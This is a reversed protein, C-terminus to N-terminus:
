VGVVKHVFDFRTITGVLRGNEVVVGFEVHSEVLKVAVQFMPTSVEFHPADRRIIRTVKTSQAHRLLDQFPEFTKLFNLNDIMMLYDPIGVKLLRGTTILGMYKMNELNDVVPIDCTQKSVMMKIADDLSADVTLVPFDREMLDRATVVEGVTENHTAVYDIVGRGSSQRVIGDLAGPKSLLRATASMTRLYLNSKGEPVCYMVIVRVPEQDGMPIGQPFLGIFVYFDDFFVERAHPFAIGPAVVFSGLKQREQLATLLPAGPAGTTAAYFDVMMKMAEDFSAAAANCLVNESSLLHSLNM